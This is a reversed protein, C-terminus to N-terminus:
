LCFLGKSFPMDPWYNAHFSMLDVFNINMDQFAMKVDMFNGETRSSNESYQHALHGVQQIDLFVFVFLFFENYTKFYEEVLVCFADRCQRLIDVLADCASAQMSNYNLNQCIQAVVARCIDYAFEDCM